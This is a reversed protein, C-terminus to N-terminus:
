HDKRECKYGGTNLIMAILEPKTGILLVSRNKCSVYKCVAFQTGNMHEYCVVEVSRDPDPDNYDSGIISLPCTGSGIPSANHKCPIYLMHAVCTSGVPYNDDVYLPKYMEFDAIVTNYLGEGTSDVKLYGVNNKAYDAVDNALSKFAAIIDTLHRNSHKCGSVDYVYKGRISVHMGYPGTFRRFENLILGFILGNVDNVNHVADLVSSLAFSSSYFEYADINRWMVPDTVEKLSTGIDIKLESGVCGGARTTISVDTLDTIDIINGPLISKPEFSERNLQFLAASKSGQLCAIYFGLEHQYIMTKVAATSKTDALMNMPVEKCILMKAEQRCPIFALAVSVLFGRQNEVEFEIAFDYVDFMTMDPAIIALKLYKRSPDSKIKFVLKKLQEVFKDFQGSNSNIASLHLVHSLVTVTPYECSLLLIDKFMEYLRVGVTDTPGDVIDVLRDLSLENITKLINNCESWDFADVSTGNKEPFFDHNVIVEEHPYPTNPSDGCKHNASSFLSLNLM